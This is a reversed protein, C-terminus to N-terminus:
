VLNLNDLFTAATVEDGTITVYNRWPLRTTAWATFDHTTSEIVSAAPTNPEARTVTILADAPDLRWRGGGPGTLVLTVPKALSLRIGNQMKPLGALLWNVAPKLRLEDPAPANHGSVPGRPSLVDWRLHTYFDFSFMDPIAHEPYSGLDLLQAETSAYPEDQLASFMPLAIASQRELDAIVQDPSWSSKAAVNMDNLKEIGLGTTLEGRIAAILIGLLDGMHTAVDKVTWGAAASPMNWEDDLSRFITLVDDLTARLGAIGERSM